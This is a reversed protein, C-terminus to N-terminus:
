DAGGRARPGVDPEPTLGQAATSLLLTASVLMSRLAIM